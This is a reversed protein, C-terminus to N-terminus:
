AAGDVADAAESEAVGDTADDDSTADQGDAASPAVGLRAAMEVGVWLQPESPTREERLERAAVVERAREFAAVFDRSTLSDRYFAEGFYTYDRGHECGFSTRDARAATIVLARPSKLADIYGGSFCASVVVVRWPLEAGRVIDGLEDASLDRLRLNAFDVSFEHDSSGHSTMHLFLTDEAGMLAALGRLVAALNHANALPLERVTQRSNVLRVSRGATGLQDRFLREVHRVENEFVDQAAYSAFGVFYLDPEGPRSPQVDALAARVLREQRTYTREIDLPPALARDRPARYMSVEPLAAALAWGVTAAAAAALVRRPAALPVERWVIRGLVLVCVGGFADGAAGHWAALPPAAAAAVVELALAGSLAGPVRQLRGAALGILFLAAGTVLLRTALVHLGWVNFAPSRSTARAAEAYDGLLGLAVVFALALAIAPADGSFAPAWRRDAPAWRRDAPSVRGGAPGAGRVPWPAFLRLALAVDRALCRLALGDRVGRRPPAGIGIPAQTHFRDSTLM